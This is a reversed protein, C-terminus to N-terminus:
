KKIYYEELSYMTIKESASGSYVTYIAEVRYNGTSTLSKTKSMMGYYDNFTSEWSSITTWQAALYQQLRIKIKVKTTSNPYGYAAAGCTATGGTSINLSTYTTNTYSWRPQVTAEETSATATWVNVSLVLVVSMTICLLSHVIKSM